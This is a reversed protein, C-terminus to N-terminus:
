FLSLLAKIMIAGIIIIVIIKIIDFVTDVPDTRRSM